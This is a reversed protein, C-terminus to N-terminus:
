PNEIRHTIMNTLNEKFRVQNVEPNTYQCRAMVEAATGKDVEKSLLYEGMDNYKTFGLKKQYVVM